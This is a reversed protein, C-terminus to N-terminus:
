VPATPVPKRCAVVGARDHGIQGAHRALVALGIQGLQSLHLPHDPVRQLLPQLRRLGVPM